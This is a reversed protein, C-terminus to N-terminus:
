IKVEPRGEKFTENLLGIPSQVVSIARMLPEVNERAINSSKHDDNAEPCESPKNEMNRIMDFPMTTQSGCTEMSAFLDQVLETPSKQAMLFEHYNGRFTHRGTHQMSLNPELWVQIKDQHCYKCFATDEGWWERSGFLFGTQFFKWEVDGTLADKGIMSPHKEMFTNFVTRNIRLLGTPVMAAYILGTDPNFMAQLQDNCHVSVPYGVEESKYPYAAGVVQVDHSLLKLLADPPFGVDSDIFIMDMCDSALFRKVLANRAQCIYPDGPKDAYTVDWGADALTRLNSILSSVTTCDISGTGAPIALFVKKNSPV